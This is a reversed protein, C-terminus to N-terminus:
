LVLTGISVATEEAQYVKVGILAADVSGHEGVAVGVHGVQVFCFEGSSSRKKKNKKFQVKLKRPSNQQQHNPHPTTPATPVVPAGGGVVELDMLSSAKGDKRLYATEPVLSKHLLSRYISELLLVAANERARICRTVIMDTMKLQIGVRKLIVILTQWNDQIKSIKSCSPDFASLLIQAGRLHKPKMLNLFVADYSLLIEAFLFGSSFARRWSQISHAVTRHNSLHLNTIWQMLDDQLSTSPPPVPPLSSSAFPDKKKGHNSGRVMPPKNKLTNRQQQALQTKKAKRQQDLQREQQKKKNRMTEKKTKIPSLQLPALTPALTPQNLSHFSQTLADDLQQQQFLNDTYLLWEELSADGDEGVVDIITPLLQDPKTFPTLHNSHLLLDHIAPNLTFSHLMNKTPLLMAKYDDISPPHSPPHSPPNHQSADKYLEIFIQLSTLQNPPPEIGNNLKAYDIM